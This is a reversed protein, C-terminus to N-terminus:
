KAIVPHPMATFKPEGNVWPATSLRLLVEERVAPDDVYVGIVIETSRGSPRSGVFHDFDLTYDDTQFSFGEPLYPRLSAPVVGPQANQPWSRNDAMHNYAAVQIVHLDAMISMARTKVVARNLNPTILGALIGVIVVAVSVEVLTFGADRRTRTHERMAKRGEPNM